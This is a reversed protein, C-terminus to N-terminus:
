TIAGTSNNYVYEASCKEDGSNSKNWVCIKAGMEYAGYACGNGSGCSTAYATGGNSASIDATPM